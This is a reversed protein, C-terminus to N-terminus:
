DVEINVDILDGTPSLVPEVELHTTGAESVAKQGSKTTVAPNAASEARKGDVLKLLDRLGTAADSDLRYGNTFRLAQEKPLSIVNCQITINFVPAAARSSFSASLLGVLLLTQKLTRVRTPNLASPFLNQSGGWISPRGHERHRAPRIPLFAAGRRTIKSQARDRPLGASPVGTVM